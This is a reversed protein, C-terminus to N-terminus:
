MKYLYEADLMDVKKDELVKLCKDMDSPRIIAQAKGNTAFSYMYEIFVGSDSLTRLIKALSGPINPISIGIVDTLSAAFHHQKLISYAREPDSVISRLIGFEATEAVCWASINIGEAALIEALETFRGQKNELFISLQKALM